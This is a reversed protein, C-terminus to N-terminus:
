LLGLARLEGVPEEFSCSGVSALLARRTGALEGASASRGRWAFATADLAFAAPDVEALAAEEDGFVAAALLNVLGHQGDATLGHHLGATAKFAVGRARCLRVFAALEKASPVSAGGCRVKARLGLSALEDLRGPLADDLPVEVYVEPALGGVDALDDRWPLELAEVKHSLAVFDEPRLDLVVSLPRDSGPLEGLRSAPWVLRGLLPADPSEAAARDAALAEDLPLSAPPFLPAHGILGDLLAHRAGARTGTATV